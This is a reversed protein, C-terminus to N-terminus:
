WPAEENDFGGSPATGNERDKSPFKVSIEDVFTTELSRGTTGDSKEYTREYVTAEVDLFDGKVVDFDADDNWLGVKIFNVKGTDEYENTEKNKRRENDAVTFEKVRAGSPLTKVEPERIVRGGFIAKM